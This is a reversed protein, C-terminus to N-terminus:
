IGLAEEEEEEDADFRDAHPGNLLADRTAGVILDVEATTLSFHPTFRLSHDGGHIVGVGHRRMYEETSGAGYCKYTPDLEVSLLLGTGQVQTIRGDLEERLADFKRLLEAGRDRVNARLGPTVSELVACAVDLARPNSTMTNGYVGKRYLGAARASLALVSLPYQGANLAKSYSEVDPAACDEFGPYDVISLCGQARLGAQISDVVFITGHEQALAHAADYWARTMALGPNGEGMVPEVLLIEIYFGEREARAYLERLAAIDNPEVTLLPARDRFTALHHQYAKRTSDSFQAPRDTRGHFSRRIAAQRIPKGAYQGGAETVIKANIDALRAALSMAESGSNLCVFREYPCSGRRHGVERQLAEVFRYQSFSSTMVNAMVQHGSMAALVHQPAHGFGLMGYGGNDHVVAGKSTVIWPGRAGLPVYPNVQDDAYFNLLDANLAHIQATEDAEMLERYQTWLHAHAAFADEIAHEVSEDRAAFARIVEDSLGHTIVAGGCARIAKLKDMFDM